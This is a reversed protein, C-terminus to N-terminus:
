TFKCINIVKDLKQTLNNTVRLKNTRDNEGQISCRNMIIKIQYCSVVTYYFTILKM